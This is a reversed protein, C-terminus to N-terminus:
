ESNERHGSETSTRKKLESVREQLWSILLEAVPPALMVDVDVERVIANRTVSRSAIVNGLTGDPNIKRVERQPIASRESFFAVHVSGNPTVGGIVGDAHVVHFLQGKIYDFAVQPAQDGEDRGTEEAM